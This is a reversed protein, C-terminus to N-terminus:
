RQKIWSVFKKIESHGALSELTNFDRGLEKAGFTKHIYYHCDRCLNVGRNEMDIRSFNKKFWKNSHTTRPILHHFSLNKERGCLECSGYKIRPPPKEIM